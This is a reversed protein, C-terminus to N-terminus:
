RSGSSLRLTPRSRHETSTSRPRKPHCAKGLAWGAQAFVRRAEDELVHYAPEYIDPSLKKMLLDRFSSRPLLCYGGDKDTDCAVISSTKLYMFAHRIFPFMNSWGSSRCLFSTMTQLHGTLDSYVRRAFTQMRPDTNSHPKFTVPPRPRRKDM